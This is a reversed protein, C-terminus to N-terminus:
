SHVEALRAFQQHSSRMFPRRYGPDDVVRTVRCRHVCYDIPETWPLCNAVSQRM